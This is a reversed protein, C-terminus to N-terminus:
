LPRSFPPLPRSGWVLASDAIQGRSDLRGIGDIGWSALLGTIPDGTNRLWCLTEFQEDRLPDSLRPRLVALAYACAQAIQPPRGPLTMSLEILDAIVSQSRPGLDGLGFAAAHAVSPFRGDKAVTALDDEAVTSQLYSATFAAVERLWGPADPHKLLPLTMEAAAQGFGGERLTECCRRRITGDPTLLALQVLQATQEAVSKPVREM